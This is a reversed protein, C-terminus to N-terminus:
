PNNSYKIMNDLAVRHNYPYPDKNPEDHGFPCRLGYEKAQKDVARRYEKKYISMKEASRLGKGVM